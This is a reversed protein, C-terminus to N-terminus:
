RRRRHAPNKSCRVIKNAKRRTVRQTDAKELRAREASRKLSEMLYYASEEMTSTGGFM